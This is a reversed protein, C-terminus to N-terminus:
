RLLVVIGEEEIVAGGNLIIKDIQIMSPCCGKGSTHNVQLNIVDDGLARVYFEEVGNYLRLFVRNPVVDILLPKEVGEELYFMEIDGATLQSNSGFLLDEGSSASKITFEFYEPLCDIGECNKDSCSSLLCFLFLLRLRGTLM